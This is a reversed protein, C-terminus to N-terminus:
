PKRKQQIGGAACSFVDAGIHCYGNPNKDLYKQHYEEAPYFNTLPLAEIAIPRDYSQALKALSAKIISEEPEDSGQIWYIGSRYQLGVDHGQRNFSTPDIALYFRELLDSLSIIQPDYVVEVTEAHRTLGTCVEEYTPNETIGNAYGVQTAIVGPVLGLYKEAGWFCGGALYIKM